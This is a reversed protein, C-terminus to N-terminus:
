EMFTNWLNKVKKRVMALLNAITKESLNFQEGIEANTFGDISLSLIQKEKKPLCNLLEKFNDNALNQKANNFSITPLFGKIGELIRIRNKKTKIVDLSKNKVMVLLLAKINIEEEIFKQQRKTIPMAFIKEFCDAVIDEAEQECQVYRYAVLYLEPLWNKYLTSLAQNDGKCFQQLAISHISILHSLFLHIENKDPCM